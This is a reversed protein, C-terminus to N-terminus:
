EGRHKNLYAIAQELISIDDCANGLLQNCSRHLFGRPRGTGHCHDLDGKENAFEKKCLACKGAQSELMASAREPDLGYVHKLRFLYLKKKGEPTKRLESRARVYCKGCRAQCRDPNGSIKHFKERPLNQDCGNCHKLNLSRAAKRTLHKGDIVIGGSRSLVLPPM